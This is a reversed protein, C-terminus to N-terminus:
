FFPVFNKEIRKRFFLAQFLCEERHVISNEKIRNRGDRAHFLKSRLICTANIAVLLQSTFECSCSKRSNIVVVVILPSTKHLQYSHRFVHVSKTMRDNDKGWSKNTIDNIIFRWDEHQEKNHTEHFVLVLFVAVSYKNNLWLLFKGINQRTM